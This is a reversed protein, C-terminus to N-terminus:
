NLEGAKRYWTQPPEKGLIRCCFDEFVGRPELIGAFLLQSLFSHMIAGKPVCELGFEHVM